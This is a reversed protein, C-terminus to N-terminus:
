PPTPGSAQPGLLIEQEAMAARLRVGDRARLEPVHVSHAEAEEPPVPSGHGAVREGLSLERIVIAVVRDPAAGAAEVYVAPDHQGDDGVLLWRRDPFEEFLRSLSERKHERGSRFWGDRTPGWDTMLLPGRPFGHRALFRTMAGATNWAGTSLYVVFADPHRTVIEDYLDAMGSVARRASERALFANRFAVLPRPVFTEIVTDDLDSVVGLGPGSGVITVRAAVPDRGPLSLRVDHWGPELRCRVRVDVYGDRDSVAEHVDEGVEIRVAIGPASFTVFRRWGRLDRPELPHEGPLLLVRALVRVWGASEDALGYGPVPLVAPVYGRSRAARGLAANLREEARGALHPM